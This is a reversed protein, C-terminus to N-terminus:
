SHIRDGLLKKNDKKKSLNKETNLNSFNRDRSENM